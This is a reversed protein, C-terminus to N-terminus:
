SNDRSMLDPLLLKNYVPPLETGQDRNLTPRQQRITIAEKVKRRTQNEDSTIIKAGEKSLCHGTQKMHESVASNSTRLNMHDKFRTELSRGTECM